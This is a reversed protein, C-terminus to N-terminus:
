ESNAVLDREGLQRLMDLRPETKPAAQGPTIGYRKELWTMSEARREQFYVSVCDVHAVTRHAMKFIPVPFTGAVIARKAQRANPYGFIEILEDFELNRAPGIIIFFTVGPHAANGPRDESLCGGIFGGGSVTSLYDIRKLIDLNALAQIVGLNFAASRIGGGSLALGILGHGAKPRAKSRLNKRAEQFKLYLKAIRSRKGEIDRLRRFRRFSSRYRRYIGRRFSAGTEPILADLISDIGAFSSRERQFEEEARAVTELEDELGAVSEGLAAMRRKAIEHLEDPFVEIEFQEKGNDLEPDNM